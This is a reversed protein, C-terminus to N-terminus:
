ALERSAKILLERTALIGQEENLRSGEYEVGIHGTYGANKVIQLMKVYDITTENGDADFDYSKASVAKAYPMLEEVGKYKDYEEVCPAGWRADGERRLCFNGFDPLTGCNDMNVEKMVEALLAANSSLYGHNEVLVNVNSKKAYESLRGLADISTEKWIKPDNTGFLNIRMSHCGLGASADVWVHHNEIAKDREAKDPSSMDGQGERLDVMMILNEVGNDNSRQNLEKVLSSVAKNLDTNESWKSTYLHNVYELGSFGWEKAKKAFDLPNMGGEQIMKHISWQALSLKFFPEALKPTEVLPTEQEKEKKEGACSLLGFVSLALSTKATNKVFDRRDM